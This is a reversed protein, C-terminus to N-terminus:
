NETKPKEIFFGQKFRLGIKKVTEFNKLPNDDLTIFSAEYGESLKGIKRKPFITQPTDEVAIKLLTKNDFIKNDYLHWLEIGLTKSYYDSGLIVKVGNKHMLNLLRKQREVIQSFREQNLNETGAVYETSEIKGIQTTPIVAIKKKAALKIDALTLDDKPIDEIKGNWGYNPAHAFGDIGIKLGLRFDNTTEIHAFVRLGAQHAKGVVYEAVEPSLGKDGVKGNARIKEYNEADLLLIKVVDPKQALFKGWKADVDSKSDVFWYVENEGKRSVKIKDMNTEWDTYNYFGLARPEYALFPHGLTSTFGGNAYVVDLSSPKNLFPKAQKAGLAYNALVQVYFTGEELYANIIKELNFTGDLNHTHADGFPPIVYQNKLDVTEDIGMPKKSTLVGNVSYFVRNKFTKGDFWKGNKFEYVRTKSVATQAIASITALFVLIVVSVIIKKM